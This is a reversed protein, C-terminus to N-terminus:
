MREPAEIGLLSLGRALQRRTLDVLALRSERVAGESKLVPCHEYFAFFVRALGYLHEAVYHPYCQEAASHVVDSLKMLRRALALEYPDELRLRDATLAATDIEGKGLISCCRAHAYQLYPGANGSFSILKDWDFKYDSTRNQSLDAYKVAGIGVPRALDGAMEASLSLPEQQMLAAAREEAEDLLSSLTIATGDRTKIPKADTGLVTGFGVHELRMDVGLLRM